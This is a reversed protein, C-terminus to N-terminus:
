YCNPLKFFFYFFFFFGCRTITVHINKYQRKHCHGRGTSPERGNLFLRKINKFRWTIRTRKYNTTADLQIKPVYIIFAGNKYVGCEFIFLRDAAVHPASPPVRVAVNVIWACVRLEPRTSPASGDSLRADAVAVTPRKDDQTIHDSFYVLKTGTRCVAM